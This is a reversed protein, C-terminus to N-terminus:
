IYTIYTLKVQYLTVDDNSNMYVQLNKDLAQVETNWPTLGEDGGDGNSTRADAIDFTYGIPEEYLYFFDFKASKLGEMDIELVASLACSSNFNRRFFTDMPYAPM